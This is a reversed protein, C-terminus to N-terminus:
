KQKENRYADSCYGVWSFVFIVFACNLSLLAMGQHFDAAFFWGAILAFIGAGFFMAHM